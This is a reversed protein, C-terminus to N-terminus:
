IKKEFCYWVVMVEKRVFRIFVFLGLSGSVFRYYSFFVLYFFIGFVRDIINISFDLFSRVLRKKYKFFVDFDDLYIKFINGSEIDQVLFYSVRSGMLFLFDDNVNDEFKYEFMWIQQEQQFYIMEQFRSYWVETNNYSIIVIFLFILISFFRYM